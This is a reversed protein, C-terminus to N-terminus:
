AVRSKCERIRFTEASKLTGNHPAFVRNLIVLHGEDITKFLQPLNEADVGLVVVCNEVGPFLHLVKAQQSKEEANLYKGEQARM